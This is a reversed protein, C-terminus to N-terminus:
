LAGIPLPMLRPPAKEQCSYDISLESECVFGAQQFLALVCLAVTVQCSPSGYLLCSRVQMILFIQGGQTGQTLMANTPLKERNQTIVTLIFLVNDISIRKLDVTCEIKIGSIRLNKMKKLFKMKM